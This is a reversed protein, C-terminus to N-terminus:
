GSSCWLLVFVAFSFSFSCLCLVPSFSLFPIGVSLLSAQSHWLFPHCLVWQGAWGLYTISLDKGVQGWVGRETTGDDKSEIEGKSGAWKNKSWVFAYNKQAPHWDIVHNIKCHICPWILVILMNMEKKELKECAICTAIVWLGQDHQIVSASRGELCADWDGNNIWGTHKQTSVGLRGIM